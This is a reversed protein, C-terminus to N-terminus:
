KKIKRKGQHIMQRLINVIQVHEAGDTVKIGMLVLFVIEKKKGLEELLIVNMQMSYRAVDASQLDAPVIHVQHNNMPIAHLQNEMNGFVLQTITTSIAKLPKIIYIGVLMHLHQHADLKMVVHTQAADKM